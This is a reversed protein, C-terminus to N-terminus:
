QQALTSMHLKLTRGSLHICIWLFFLFPNVPKHTATITYHQHFVPEHHHDTFQHSTNPSIFTISIKTHQLRISHQAFFNFATVLFLYLFLFLPISASLSNKLFYPTKYLPCPFYVLNKTKTQGYFEMAHKKLKLESSSYTFPIKSYYEGKIAQKHVCM